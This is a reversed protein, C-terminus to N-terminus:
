RVTMRTASGCRAEIHQEMGGGIHQERGWAHMAEPPHPPPHTPHPAVAHSVLQPQYLCWGPQQSQKQSQQQPPPPPQPPQQQQLRQRPTQELKSGWRQPQPKQPPQPPQPPQPQQPKGGWPRESEAKWTISKPSETSWVPKALLSAITEPEGGLPPAQVAMPSWLLSSLEHLSSSFAGLRPKAVAAAPYEVRAAHIAALPPVVAEPADQELNVWGKWFPDSADGLACVLARMEEKDPILRFTLWKCFEIELANLEGVSIGGCQAMFSNAHFVDDSSKSALVLATVLLRHVNHHTLCLSPGGAQAIRGLYALAILFCMDDFRTYRRIRQLYSHVSMCPAEVSDFSTPSTARLDRNCDCLRGIVHAITTLYSDDALASMAARSLPGIEHVQRLSL